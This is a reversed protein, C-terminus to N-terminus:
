FENHKLYVYQSESLSYLTAVSVYRVKNSLINYPLTQIRNSLELIGLNARLVIRNSQVFMRVSVLYLFAESKCFLSLFGLNESLIIQVPLDTIKINIVPGLIM